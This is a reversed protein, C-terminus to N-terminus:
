TNTCIDNICACVHVCLLILPLSLSLGKKGGVQQTRQLDALQQKLRAAEEEAARLRAIVDESLGTAATPCLSCYVNSM